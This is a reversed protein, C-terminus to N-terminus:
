AGFSGLRRESLLNDVVDGANGSEKKSSGPWHHITAEQVNNEAKLKAVYERTICDVCSPQGCTSLEDAGKKERQCGHNGVVVVTIRSMGM